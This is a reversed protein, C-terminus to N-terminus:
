VLFYRNNDSDRAFPLQRDAVIYIIYQFFMEFSM